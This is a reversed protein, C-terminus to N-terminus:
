ESRTGPWFRSDSAKYKSSFIIYRNAYVHMGLNKMIMICLESDFVILYAKFPQSIDDSNFAHM